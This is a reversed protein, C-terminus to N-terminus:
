KELFARFAHAAALVHTRASPTTFVQRLYGHAMDPASHMMVRAGAQALLQAYTVAEDYLPDHWAGTVVTSPAAAKWSQQMPVARPDQPTKLESLPLEPSLFQQWYWIMAASTLGPGAGRERYSRSNFQMDTVPYFLLAGAIQMAPQTHALTHMAVAALHGGASDGGVAVRRCAFDGVHTQAWALAQQADDCPAPFTHEPAKRYQVSLIKMGLHHSLFHCCDHHTQLDGIVWGGGHFYVLLVDSSLEAPEYLRAPLTSGPLDLTLDRQQGPLAPENSRFLVGSDRSIARRKAISLEQPPVETLMAAARIALDHSIANLPQGESLGQRHTYSAIDRNMDIKIV